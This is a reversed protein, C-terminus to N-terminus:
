DQIIKEIARFLARFPELDEASLNIDDNVIREAFDNKSHVVKVENSDIIDNSSDLIKEDEPTLYKKIKGTNEIWRIGEKVKHNGYMNFESSLYLRRGNADEISLTENTFLLEVSVNNGCVRFSPCPLMLTYTNKGLSRWLCGSSDDIRIKSKFDRDFLCIIKAKSVEGLNNAVAFLKDGGSLTELNTISVELDGFEDNSQLIELVKQLIKTDTKGETLITPRTIAKLKNNIEGNEISENSLFSYIDPIDPSIIKHSSIETEFSNEKRHFFNLSYTINQSVSFKSLANILETSHTEIFLQLNDGACQTILEALAEQGRPHLHLEPNELILISNSSASLLMTILPLVNTIGFGVNGPKHNRTKQHHNTYFFRIQAINNDSDSNVHFRIDPSIEKLWKEINEVLRNSSAGKHRRRESVVFNENFDLFHALYEGSNGLSNNREVHYSSRTFYAQPAIRESKLYHINLDTIEEINKSKNINLALFDSNQISPSYDLNLISVRDQFTLKFEIGYKDDGYECFVDKGVGLSTCSGNLTIGTNPLLQEELSQKILLLAQILSSKGMGNLGYNININYLNVSVCKLSKFNIVEISQIIKGM